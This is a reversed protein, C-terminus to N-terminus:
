HMVLILSSVYNQLVLRITVVVMNLNLYFNFIITNSTFFNILLVVYIILYYFNQILFIIIQHIIIDVVDVHHM